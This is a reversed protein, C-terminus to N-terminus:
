RIDTRSLPPMSKSSPPHGECTRGTQTSNLLGIPADKEVVFREM